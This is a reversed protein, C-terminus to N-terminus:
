SCYPMNLTDYGYYSWTWIFAGVADQKIKACPSVINIKNKLYLKNLPKDGSIFFFNSKLGGLGYRKISHVKKSWLDIAFIAVYACFRPKDTAITELPREEM